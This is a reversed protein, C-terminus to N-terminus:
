RAAIIAKFRPDDQIPRWWWHVSKRFGERHKPNAILYEDLLRLAEEKDGLMIRMVAQYGLLEKKPDVDANGKSRELVHRSSDVLGARALVGAVFIQEYLQTFPRNAEPSLRVAESALRWARDVDPDAAKTTAMFM